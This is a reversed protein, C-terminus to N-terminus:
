GLAFILALVYAYVVIVGACAIVLYALATAIQRRIRRRRVRRAIPGNVATSAIPTVRALTIGEREGVPWPDIV